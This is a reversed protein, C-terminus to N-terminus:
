VRPGPDIELPNPRVQGPPRIPVVKVPLPPLGTAPGGDTRRLYGRLDYTGPDLGYYEIDYRFATGHPYSRLSQIVIPRKRDAYPKAELEPGPLVVGELRGTMGVATERPPEQASALTSLLTLWAGAIVGAALGVKGGRGLP